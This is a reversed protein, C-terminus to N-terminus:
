GIGGDFKIYRETFVAGVLTIFVQEKIASRLGNEAFIVM